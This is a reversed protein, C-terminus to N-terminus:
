CAVSCAAHPLCAGADEKPSPKAPSMKFPYPASAEPSASVLLFVAVLVGAVLPPLTLAAAIICMLMLAQVIASLVWFWKRVEFRRMQGSVVLQPLLTGAQRLPSLFGVIYAPAGMTSLLWPLVVKASALQEALKSATGNVINMVYNLPLNTCLSDPIIKCARDYEDEGSLITYVLNIRDNSGKL